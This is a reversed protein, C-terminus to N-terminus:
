CILSFLIYRLCFLKSVNYLQSMPSASDLTEKCLTYGLTLRYEGNDETNGSSLVHLVHGAHLNTYVMLCLVPASQQM